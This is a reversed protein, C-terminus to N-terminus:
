KLLSMLLPCTTIGNPALSAAERIYLATLLSQSTLRLSVTWSSSKSYRMAVKQRNTITMLIAAQRLRMRYVVPM